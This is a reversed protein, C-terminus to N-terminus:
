RRRIRLTAWAIVGAAGIAILLWVAVVPNLLPMQVYSGLMIWALVVLGFALMVLGSARWALPNDRGFERPLWPNRRFLNAARDALDWLNFAFALGALAWVALFVTLGITHISM